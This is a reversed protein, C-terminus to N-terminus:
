IIKIVKMADEFDVLNLLTLAKDLWVKRDWREWDEDYEWACGDTHNWRCLKEHLLTALQKPEDLAEFTAKENRAKALKAELDAIEQDTTITYM